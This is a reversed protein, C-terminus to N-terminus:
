PVICLMNEGDGALHSHGRLRREATDAYIQGSAHCLLFFLPFSSHYLPMVHYPCPYSHAHAHARPM